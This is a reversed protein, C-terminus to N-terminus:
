VRKRRVEMQVDIRLQEGFVLQLLNQYRIKLEGINM